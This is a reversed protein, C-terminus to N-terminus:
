LEDKKLSIEFVDKKRPIKPEENPVGIPIVTAIVEDDPLQLLDHLKVEDFIGLIVTGFGMDHAALCLTQAAVGTDFMQWADKKLTEYEGDKTFGVIGKKFSVIILNPADGVFSHNWPFTMTEENIKQILENNQVLHYRVIQANKWSPAWRTIDILQHFQSSTLKYDTFKRVSRRTKITTITEM